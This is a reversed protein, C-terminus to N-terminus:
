AKLIKEKELRVCAFEDFKNSIFDVADKLDLLQREDKTQNSNIFSALDMLEKVEKELNKLCNIM